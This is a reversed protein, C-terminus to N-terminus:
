NFKKISQTGCISKSKKKALNIPVPCFPVALTFFFFIAAIICALLQLLSLRNKKPPPNAVFLGM